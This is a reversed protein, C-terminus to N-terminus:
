TQGAAVVGPGHQVGSGRDREAGFQQAEDVDEDDVLVLGRGHGSHRYRRRGLRGFGAVGQPRPATADDDDRQTGLARHQHAGIADDMLASDRDLHHIGGSRAVGERAAERGPQGFAGAQGIRESHATAAPESATVASPAAGEM